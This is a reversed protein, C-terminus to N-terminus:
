GIKIRSETDALKGKPDTENLVIGLVKGGSLALDELTDILQQRKTKKASVVVLAGDVSRSLVTSDSAPLVPPTDIIVLDCMESLEELTQRMQNSGLLEASNPPIVGSTLVYLNASHWPQLASALNDRGTLVTSLGRSNDLGTLAGIAPDRMDADVLIVRVHASMAQALNLATVSKGESRMPSTVILTRVSRDYCVFEFNASLKRFAESRLDNQQQDALAQQRTMPDFPVDGIVPTTTLDKVIEPNRVKNNTLERVVAVAIGILAGLIFGLAIDLKKNPSSPFQPVQAPAVTSAKVTAANAANSSPSLTSIAAGMQNGIANAIAAAEDPSPNTVTIDLVVTDLPVNTSVARALQTSNYPLNLQKIVPDLVVPQEALLAYSRVQNQAFTSGQVLQTTSDGGSLYFYVSTTAQYQPTVTFTYGIALVLGALACIGILRWSRVIVNWYRSLNM